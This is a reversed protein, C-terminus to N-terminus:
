PVRTVRCQGGQCTAALGSPIQPVCPPCGAPTPDCVYRVLEDNSSVAIFDDNPSCGECCQAGARLLCDAAGKCETAPTSRIDLVICRGKQCTATFYGRTRQEVPLEACPSCAVGGCGTTEPYEAAHRRNLAVFATFDVPDCAACCAPSVLTCDSPVSCSGFDPTGGACAAECDGQSAFRNDNGGCGGYVFPTCLGTRADHYYAPAYALCNGPEAPLTCRNGSGADGKSPSTAGGCAAFPVVAALALFSRILM